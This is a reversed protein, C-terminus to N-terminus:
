GCKGDPHMSFGTNCTCTANANCSGALANMAPNENCTQDQGPTCAPVQCRVVTHSGELQSYLSPLGSLTVVVSGADISVVDISGMTLPMNGGGGNGMGDGLWTQGWAIVQTSSFTYSGPTQLAAPLGVVVLAHNQTGDDFHPAACSEGLTDFSFILTSGDLQEGPTFWNSMNVGAPLASDFLAVSDAAPAGGTGAGGTGMGSSSSTTSSSTTPHGSSSSPTVTTTSAGGGTNETGTAIIAPGCAALVLAATCSFISFSALRLM